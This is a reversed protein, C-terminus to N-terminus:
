RGFLLLKQIGLGHSQQHSFNTLAFFLHKKWDEPHVLFDISVILDFLDVVQLERTTCVEFPDPLAFLVASCKAEHCRTLDKSKVEM